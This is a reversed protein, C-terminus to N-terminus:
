LTTEKENNLASRIADLKLCLFVFYEYVDNTKNHIMERVQEFGIIIKNIGFDDNNNIQLAIEKAIVINENIAVLEDIIERRM